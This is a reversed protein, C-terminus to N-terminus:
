RFRIVISKGDAGAEISLVRGSVSVSNVQQQPKQQEHCCPCHETAERYAKEALPMNATGSFVMFDDQKKTAM